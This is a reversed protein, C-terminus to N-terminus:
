MSFNPILIDSAFVTNLIKGGWYGSAPFSGAKRSESHGDNFLVTAYLSHRSFCPAHAVNKAGVYTEPHKGNEILMYSQSPSKLDSFRLYDRSAGNNKLSDAFLYPNLGYYVHRDNYDLSFLPPPILPCQFVRFYASTSTSGSRIYTVLLDNFYYAKAPNSFRGALHGGNDSAYLIQAKGIQISNNMCSIKQAVARAKQLAPLLLGALIAIIAIVILLEILTFPSMQGTKMENM